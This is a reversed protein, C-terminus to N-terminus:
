CIGVDFRSAAAADDDIGVARQDADCCDDDVIGMAREADGGLVGYPDRVVEDFGAVRQSQRLGPGNAAVASRCHLRRAGGPSVQRTGSRGWGARCARCRLLLIALWRPGTDAGAVTRGRHRAATSSRHAGPRPRPPRQRAPCSPRPAGPATRTWLSTRARSSRGCLRTEAIGSRNM